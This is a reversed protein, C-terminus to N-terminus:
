VIETADVLSDRVGIGNQHKVRTRTERRYRHCLVGISLLKELFFFIFPSHSKCDWTVTM